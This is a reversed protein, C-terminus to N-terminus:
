RCTTRPWAVQAARRSDASGKSPQTQPHTWLCSPLPSTVLVLPILVIPNPSPLLKFMYSFCSMGQQGGSGMMKPRRAQRGGLLWERGEQSVGDGTVSASIGAWSEWSRLLGEGAQPSLACRTQSLSPLIKEEGLSQEPTLMHNRETGHSTFTMKWPAEPFSVFPSVASGAQSRQLTLILSPRDECCLLGPLSVRSRRATLVGQLPGAEWSSALPSSLNRVTWCGKSPIRNSAASLERVSLCKPILASRLAEQDSLEEQHLCICLGILSVTDRCKPGSVGISHPCFGRGM